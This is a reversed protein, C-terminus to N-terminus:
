DVGGALLLLPARLDGTAGLATSGLTSAAASSGGGSRLRESVSISIFAGHCPTPPSTSLRLNSFVRKFDCTLQGPKHSNHSMDRDGDHRRGKQERRGEETRSYETTKKRGGGGGRGTNPEEEERKM